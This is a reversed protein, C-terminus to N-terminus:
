IESYNLFIKILVYVTMAASARQGSRRWTGMPGLALVLEQDSSRVAHIASVASAALAAAMHCAVASLGPVENDAAAGSAALAAAAATCGAVEQLGM